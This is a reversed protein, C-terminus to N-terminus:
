IFSNYDSVPPINYSAKSTYGSAANAKTNMYYDVRSANSAVYSGYDKFFDQVKSMDAKQFTEEDISLRGKKDVSIGFEKLAKTNNATRNRIYSLNSLVGSNSSSEAKDFMTNYNNVFSKATSLIKKIDYAENGDQDKIKAFLESSALTEGDTKLAAAASSSAPKKDDTSTSDNTTGTTTSTGGGAFKVRSAITSGYSQINDTSFLKQVKSLDTNKLKTEDLQLTGDSKLMVGIEGLEKEFKSTTSMMNAVYATKNSLTSSKSATVVNNYNNVYSKMASVVKESATKGNETDEFTNENQLTSISSKLSSIGNTLNTNAEQTEKSVTPYMKEKLLKDIINNQGRRKSTSTASGSNEELSSYYSKLLKKYTGNKIANRESFLSYLNTSSNNSGYLSNGNWFNMFSM